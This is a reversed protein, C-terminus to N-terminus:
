NEFQSIAGDPSRRVQFCEQALASFYNLSLRLTPQKTLLCSRPQSLLRRNPMAHQTREHAMSYQTRKENKTAHIHPPRTNWHRSRSARRATNYTCRQIRGAGTAAHATAHQFLVTRKGNPRQKTELPPQKQVADEAEKARARERERSRWGTCRTVARRSQPDRSLNSIHHGLHM